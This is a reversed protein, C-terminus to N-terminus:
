PRPPKRGIVTHKGEGGPTPRAAEPHPLDLLPRYFPAPPPTLHLREGLSQGPKRLHFLPLSALAPKRRRPPPGPDGTAEGRPRSRRRGGRPTPLGKDRQPSPSTRAGSTIAPPSTTGAGWRWTRPRTVGRTRILALATLDEPPSGPRRAPRGRWRPPLPRAPGPCAGRHTNSPRALIAPEGRRPPPRVVGSGPGAPRRRGLHPRRRRRDGSSPHVARGLRRPGTDGRPPPARPSGASRGSDAPRRTSARVLPLLCTCLGPAGRGHEERAPWAPDKSFADRPWGQETDDLAPRRSREPCRLILGSSPWWSPVCNM